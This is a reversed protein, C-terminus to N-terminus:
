ILVSVVYKYVVRCINAASHTNLFSLILFVTTVYFCVINTIPKSTLKLPDRTKHDAIVPM